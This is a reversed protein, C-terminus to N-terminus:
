ETKSPRYVNFLSLKKGFLISPAYLTLVIGRAAMFATFALWLGHNGLAPKALFYVPLFVGFTAILLTNRMPTSETAGIYVGDWVFAPANVLPAIVVWFFFPSAAEVIAPKNTFLKFLPMGGLAYVLSLGVALGMGWYFSHRIAKKLQQFHQSGTFRGVLSEAAFAFGDVGFALIYIFQLYIQNVGLITEGMASSKATFFSFTFILCLTRIFIDRNVSFFARIAKMKFIARGKLYALYSQYRKLALVMATALGVFQAILTGIAIGGSAYGLGYVFGLNAVINTVNAALSVILVYRANQLGMFWGYFAYLAITAPAAFIRIRFYDRAFNEVAPTSEVLWFALKVIPTQLLILATSALLATLLARMLLNIVGENDTGGYAQATLGTTGMRLFGFGWYLFNFIMSGVAIAGLHAPNPVHGMLATDVVGLLPVTLNSIINPAALRLIERNM